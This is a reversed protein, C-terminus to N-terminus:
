GLRTHIRQRYASTVAAKRKRRCENCLIGKKQYKATFETGCLTCRVTKVPIHNDLFQREKNTWKGSLLENHHVRRHESRSLLILNEVADNVTDGDLHHVVLGSSVEGKHAIWIHVAHLIWTNPAAVKIWWRPSDNRAQRITVAGIPLKNDPVCGKKFETAPALHQGPKIPCSPRHGPKFETTPSARAGALFETTPSIHQGRAITM